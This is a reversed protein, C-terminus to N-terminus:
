AISMMIEALVTQVIRKWYVLPFQAIQCMAPIKRCAVNPSANRHTNPLEPTSCKEGSRSSDMGSILPKM